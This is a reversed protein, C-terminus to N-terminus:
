ESKYCNLIEGTYVRHYDKQPYLTEISSDLFNSSKFDDFYIKRCEMILRAEKYGIGNGPLLFKSLGTKQIKDGDRGSHSGCYELIEKKEDNFFSLTFIESKEMFEYTYRTPRIYCVAVPRKWLIGFTGWGGTMTNCDDLTGATILFWDDDAMKFPNDTIDYPSIKVFEEPM